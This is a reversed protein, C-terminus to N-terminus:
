GLREYAAEVEERTISIEEMQELLDTASLAGHRRLLTIMEPVRPHAYIAHEGAGLIEVLGLNRAIGVTQAPQLNPPLPM